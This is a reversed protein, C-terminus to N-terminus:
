RQGTDRLLDARLEALKQKVKRENAPGMRVLIKQGASLAELQPDAFEYRVWPRTSPVPGRVDTLRVRPPQAPEPAALLHDIVRVVRDSLPRGGLGLQGYAQVLLPVMRTYLRVAAVSDVASVMAVFPAYRQANAAAIVLGGDSSEEVMFHGPTTPLPWLLPPAHARALNDLTAVFRRPFEDTQVQAALGRRGLLQALASPIEGAPLPRLDPAAVPDPVLAEPAAPRPPEATRYKPLTDAVPTPPPQGTWWVWGAVTALGLVAGALAPLLGRSRPASLRWDQPDIRIEATHQPTM